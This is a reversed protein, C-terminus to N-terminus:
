ICVYICENGTAQETVEVVNATNCRKENLKWRREPEQRQHVLPEELRSVHDLFVQTRAGFLAQEIFQLPSDLTSTNSNEIRGKAIRFHFVINPM